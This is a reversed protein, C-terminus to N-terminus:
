KKDVGKVEKDHEGALPHYKKRIEVRAQQLREADQLDKIIKTNVEVPKKDKDKKFLNMGHLTCIVFMLSLVTVMKKIM